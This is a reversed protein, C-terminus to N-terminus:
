PTSNQNGPLLYDMDYEEGDIAENNALDLNGNILTSMSSVALISLNSLLFYSSCVGLEQVSDVLVSFLNFSHQPATTLENPIYDAGLLM